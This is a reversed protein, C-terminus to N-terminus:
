TDLNITDLIALEQVGQGDPDQARAEVVDSADNSNTFILKVDTIVEVENVPEPVDDDDDDGCSTLVVSSAMLAILAYNRLKFFTNM